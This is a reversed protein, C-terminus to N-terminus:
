QTIIKEVATFLLDRQRPLYSEHAFLVQGKNDVVLLLPMGSINNNIQANFTATDDPILTKLCGRATDVQQIEAATNVPNIKIVAVKDSSFKRCLDEVLPQLRRCPLCENFSFFVVFYKKGANPVQITGSDMLRYRLAPLERIKQDTISQGSNYFHTTLMCEFVIALAFGSVIGALRLRKTKLNGLVAWVIAGNVICHFPFFQPFFISSQDTYAILGVIGTSLAIEFLFLQLGSFFIREPRFLRKFFLTAILYEIARAVVPYYIKGEYVRSLWGNTLFHHSLFFVLMFFISGATPMAKKM